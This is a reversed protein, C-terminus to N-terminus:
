GYNDTLINRIASYVVNCGAIQILYFGFVDQGNPFFCFPRCKFCEVKKFIVQVYFRWVQDGETVEIECNCCVKIFIAPRVIAQEFLIEPKGAKM